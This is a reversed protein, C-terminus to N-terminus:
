RRRVAVFVLFCGLAIPTLPAYIWVLGVSVLGVGAWGLVERWSEKM